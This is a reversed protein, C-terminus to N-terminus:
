TLFVILMIYHAISNISADWQRRNRGTYIWLGFESDFLDTDGTYWSEALLAATVRDQAGWRPPGYKVM